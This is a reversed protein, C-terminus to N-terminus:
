PGSPGEKVKLPPLMAEAARDQGQPAPDKADPKPRAAAPLPEAHDLVVTRGVTKAKLPPLKVEQEINVPDAPRGYFAHGDSVHAPKPAPAPAPEPLPEFLHAKDALAEVVKDVSTVGSLLFRALDLRDDRSLLVEEDGFELRIDLGDQHARLTRGQGDVVIWANM